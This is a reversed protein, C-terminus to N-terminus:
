ADKTVKGSDTSEFRHPTAEKLIQLTPRIPILDKPLDFKGFGISFHAEGSYFRSLYLTVQEKGEIPFMETIFIYLRNAVHEPDRGKNNLFLEAEETIRIKCGEYNYTKM